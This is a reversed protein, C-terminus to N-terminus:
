WYNVSRGEHTVESDAVRSGLEWDGSREDHCWCIECLAYYNRLTLRECGICEKETKGFAKWAKGKRFKGEKTVIVKMNDGIPQKNNTAWQKPM